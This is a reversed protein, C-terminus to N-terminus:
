FAGAAERDAQYNDRGDLMYDYIRAANAVSVDFKPGRGTVPMVERGTLLVEPPSCERGSMQENRAVQDCGKRLKGYAGSGLAYLLM